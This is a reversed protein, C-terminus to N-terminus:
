LQLVLPTFAVLSCDMEDPCCAVVEEGAAATTILYVAGVPNFIKQLLPLHIHIKAGGFSGKSRQFVNKAM